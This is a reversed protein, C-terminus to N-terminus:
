SPSSNMPLVSVSSDIAVDQLLTSKMTLEVTQIATQSGHVFFRFALVAFCAKTRRQSISSRKQRCM